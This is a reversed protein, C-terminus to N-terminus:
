GSSIATCAALWYCPFTQGGVIVHFYLRAKYQNVEMCFFGADFSSHTVILEAPM